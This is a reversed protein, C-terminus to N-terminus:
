APRFKWFYSIFGEGDHIRRFCLWAPMEFGVAAPDCDTLQGDGAGVRSGEGQEGRGAGRVRGEGPLPSPYFSASADGLLQRMM